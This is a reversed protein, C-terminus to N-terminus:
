MRPIFSIYIVYLTSIPADTRTLPQHYPQTDGDPPTGTRTQDFNDTQDDDVELLNLPDVTTTREHVIKHAKAVGCHICPALLLFFLIILMLILLNYQQHV